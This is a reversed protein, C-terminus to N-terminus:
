LFQPFDLNGFIDFKKKFIDKQPFLKANSLFLHLKMNFTQVINKVIYFYGLNWPSNRIQHTTEPM